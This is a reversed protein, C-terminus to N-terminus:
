WSSGACSNNGLGRDCAEGVSHRGGGTSKGQKTERSRASGEAPSLHHLRPLLPPAPPLWIRRPLCPPDVSRSATGPGRRGWRLGADSDPLVAKLCAAPHLSFGPGESSTLVFDDLYEVSCLSRFSLCILFPVLIHVRTASFSVLIGPLIYTSTYHNAGGGEFPPPPM